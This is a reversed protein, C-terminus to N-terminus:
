SGGLGDYKGRLTNGVMRPMASLRQVFSTDNGSGTILAKWLATFAATRRLTRGM